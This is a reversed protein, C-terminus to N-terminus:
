GNAARKLKKLLSYSAKGNVDEYIKRQFRKIAGRTKKGMIGDESGADYGLANLYKQTQLVLDSSKSAPTKTQSSYSKSPTYSKYSSSSSAGSGHCHYGGTKRNNHCGSANTRGGHALALESLFFSLLVALISFKVHRTRLHSVGKSPTFQPSAVSKNIGSAL